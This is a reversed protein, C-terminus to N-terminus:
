FISKQKQLLLHKTDNSSQKEMWKILKKDVWIHWHMKASSLLDLIQGGVWKIVKGSLYGPTLNDLGAV